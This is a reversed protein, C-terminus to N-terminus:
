YGGCNELFWEKVELQAKAFALELDSHQVQCIIADEGVHRSNPYVSACGQKYIYIYWDNTRNYSIEIHMPFARTQEDLWKLFDSM